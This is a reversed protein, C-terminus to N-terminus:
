SSSFSGQHAAVGAVRRKHAQQTGGSDTEGGNKGPIQPTATTSNDSALVTGASNTAMRRNTHQPNPTSHTQPHLPPSKYSTHAQPHQVRSHQEATAPQPGAGDGEVTASDDDDATHAHTHSVGRARRQVQWQWQVM